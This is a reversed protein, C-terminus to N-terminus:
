FKVNYLVIRVIVSARATESVAHNMAAEVRKESICGIKCFVHITEPIKGLNM